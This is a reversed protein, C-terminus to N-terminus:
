VRSWMKVWYYMKLLLYMIVIVDVIRGMDIM